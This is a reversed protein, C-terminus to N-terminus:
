SRAEARGPAIWAVQALLLTGTLLPTWRLFDLGLTTFGVFVGVVGVLFGNNEHFFLRDARGVVPLMVVFFRGAWLGAVAVGAVAIPLTYPALPDTVVLAYIAYYGVVGLALTAAAGLRAWALGLVTGAMWSMVVAAYTVYTSTVNLLLLFFCGFQLAALHLGTLFGFAAPQIM